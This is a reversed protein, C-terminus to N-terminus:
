KKWGWKDGMGEEVEGERGGGAIVVSNNTPSPPQAFSFFFLLFFELVWVTKFLWNTANSKFHIMSMKLPMRKAEQRSMERMKKFLLRWPYFCVNWEKAETPTDGGKILSYHFPKGKCRNKVCKRSHSLVITFVIKPVCEESIFSRTDTVM